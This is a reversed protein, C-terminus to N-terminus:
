FSKDIFPIAKHIYTIDEKEDYSIAINVNVKDNGQYVYEDINRSYGYVCIANDLSIREVEAANMSSFFENIESEYEDETLEGKHMTCVYINTVPDMGLEEYISLLIKKYNYLSKNAQAKLTIDTQIYNNYIKNGYEDTETLSIIKITTDGYEGEKILSTTENEADQKHEIKYGTRVGIRKALRKVMLEKKSINLEEDSYHAYARISGEYVSEIADGMTLKVLRKERNISNDILLQACVAAWILVLVYIKTRKNM